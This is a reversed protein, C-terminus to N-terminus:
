GRIIMYDWLAGPHGEVGGCPWGLGSGLAESSRAYAKTLKLQMCPPTLGWGGRLVALVIPRTRPFNKRDITNAGHLVKHLEKDSRMAM